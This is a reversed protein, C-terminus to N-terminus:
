SSFAFIFWEPRSIASLLLLRLSHGQAALSESLCKYKAFPGGGRIQKCDQFLIQMSEENYDMFILSYKLVLKSRCTQRGLKEDPLRLGYRDKVPRYHRCKCGWTWQTQRTACIDLHSTPPMHTFAVGSPHSACDQKRGSFSCDSRSAPFNWEALQACWLHGFPFKLLM